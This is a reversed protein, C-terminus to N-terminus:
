PVDPDMLRNFVSATWERFAERSARTGPLGASRRMSDGFLPEAVQIMHFLAVIRASDEREPPRAGVRAARRTRVQHLAQEISALMGSGAGPGVTLSLWMALRAYGRREYFEAIRKALAGLDAEEGDWTEVAQELELRLQRGAYRLLAELLGERNGFHHHVAADTVGVDSAVVQVRVADPGGEILRAEAARLIELKAQDASRRRRVAM